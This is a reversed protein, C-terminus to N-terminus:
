RQTPFGKLSVKPVINDFDKARRVVDPIKYEGLPCMYTCANKCLRNGNGDIAMFDNLLYDAEPLDPPYRKKFETRIADFLTGRRGADSFCKLHNVRGEVTIAQTPCADICIRCKEPCPDGELPPDPNLKATTLVAGLRMRTGLRKSAVLGNRAKRGLGSLVAARKMSFLGYAPGIIGPDNDARHDYRTGINYGLPVSRYGRDELWAALGYSIEHLRRNLYVYGFNGQVATTRCATITTDAVGDLLRVAVVIFSRCSPMLETPLYGSHPYVRLAKMDTSSRDMWQEALGTNVLDAGLEKAQQKLQDTLATRDMKEM